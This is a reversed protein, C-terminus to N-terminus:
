NKRCKVLVSLVLAWLDGVM